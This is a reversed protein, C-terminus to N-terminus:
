LNFAQAVAKIFGNLDKIDHRSADHIIKMDLRGYEHVILNRLGVAKTMKETLEQDIVRNEELSYFMENTSGVVLATHESVIHAAIDICNQVALQLNFLVIDQADEDNLFDNLDGKAYKKVRNMHKKVASIKAFLLDNDVM